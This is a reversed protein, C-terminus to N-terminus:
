RVGDSVGLTVLEDNWAANHDFEVALRTIPFGACPTESHSLVRIDVWESFAAKATV